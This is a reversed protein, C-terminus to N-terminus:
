KTGVFGTVEELFDVYHEKEKEYALYSVFVALEDDIHRAALYRTFADQVDEPYESFDSWYLTEDDWERGQSDFAVKEVWVTNTFVLSFMLKHHAKAISVVGRVGVTYDEIKEGDLEQPDLEDETTDQVDFQVLIKELDHKTHMKIISNNHIFALSHQMLMSSNAREKRPAAHHM